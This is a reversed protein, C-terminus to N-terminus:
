GLDALGVNEADQKPLRVLHDRETLWRAAERALEAAEPRQEHVILGVTAV